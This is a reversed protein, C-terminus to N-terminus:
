QPTKTKGSSSSSMSSMTKIKGDTYVCQGDKLTITKGDKTKVTGDKMVMTGNSLTVDETMDSTTGNKEMVMKGNKMMYCDKMHSSKGSTMKSKSTDQAHLGAAFFVAALLILLKKMCLKKQSSIPIATQLLFLFMFIVAFILGAQKIFVLSSIRLETYLKL